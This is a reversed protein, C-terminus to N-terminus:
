PRLTSILRLQGSLGWRPVGGVCGVWTVPAGDLTLDSCRKKGESRVKRQDKNGARDGAARTQGRLGPEGRAVDLAM